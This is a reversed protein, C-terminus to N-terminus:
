NFNVINSSCSVSRLSKFFSNFVCKCFLLIKFPLELQAEKKILEEEKTSIKKNIASQNKQSKIIDDNARQIERMKTSITSTSSTKSIQIEAKSKKTLANAEKTKEDSLKKRETIIDKKLKTIQNQLLSITSM